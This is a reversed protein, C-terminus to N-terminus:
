AMRRTSKATKKTAAPKPIYTTGEPASLKENVFTTSEKSKLSLEPEAVTTEPGAEPSEHTSAAEFVLTAQMLAKLTVDSTKGAFVPPKTRITAM